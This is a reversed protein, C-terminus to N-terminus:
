GLVAELIEKNEKELKEIEDYYNIRVEHELDSKLQEKLETLRSETENLESQIKEKFEVTKHKLEDDSIDRLTEYINNIEEVIPLIEKIDKEHKTSFIKTIFDLM